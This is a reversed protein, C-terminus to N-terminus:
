EPPALPWDGALGSADLRRRIAQLDWVHVSRSERSMSVLRGGDPTLSLQFAVDRDPDELRVYDRGTAPDLLRIVGKGTEVALVRPEHAAFAFATGGLVPGPEWTAADWLRCGSAATLLWRGDPSFGVPCPEDSPLEKVLAGSKTDWVKVGAGVYAGTAALRGDPSLALYVGNPHPGLLVLRQPPGRHVAIVTDATALATVGGTRSAAVSYAYMERETTPEKKAFAPKVASLDLPDGAAPLKRGARPESGLQWRSTKGDWGLSLLVGPAEFDLDRCASKVPLTGCLRGINIDWLDIGEEGGVALLRGEPDLACCGYGKRNRDADPHKQTRYDPAPVVEWQVAQGDEFGCALLGDQGFRLDLCRAPTTFLLRGTAPDWLSLRGKQDSTALLDGGRSFAARIGPSDCPLFHSRKAAVDWLLVGGHDGDCCLALLEGGPQWVLGSVYRSSAEALEAKVEGTRLDRVQVALPVPIPGRGRGWIEAAVAVAFRRGDPHVAFPGTRQMKPEWGRLRSALHVPPGGELRRVIVKGAQGSSVIACSDPTFDAGGTWGDAVADILPRETDLRWVALTQNPFRRAALYRGDPSLVPGEFPGLLHRVLTGDAARHVTLDGARDLRAYLRLDQNFACTSVQRAGPTDIAWRRVARLDPLACCAAMEDGLRPDPRERALEELVALSDCRQGPRHGLRMARAQAFRAEWLQETKAAEAQKVRTLQAQLMVAAATAGAALLLLLLAATAWGPHRRGWRWLREMASARRARIPRDALFRGLDDALDAASPYRRQPDKELCKLCITELDAPCTRSDSGLLRHPPVPDQEQVQALTDLVTAGRFPPRGTLCEYLIAGLAYTDTHPGIDKLRGDAQEPAMYSPTGMIAGATTLGTELAVHRALGFDTIKPAGGSTLLVNAPKLDRHIVGQGHAYHVARALAEVLQATLRPPQPTGSVQRDLGPGDVYELALYTGDAYEGVDYIQVINAHQLRAIMEAERRFRVLDEPRAHPSDRVVKLAVVRNLRMHHAKYVAGMGGQGLKGLMEYGPVCPVGSAVSPALRPQTPPSTEARDPSLLITAPIEGFQRCVEEEAMRLDPPLAEALGLEPYRAVYDALSPRLGRQWNRELDIKVLEILAPLRLPQGPPLREVRAALCHEDWAEEFEALWTELQLRDAPTLELLRAPITLM